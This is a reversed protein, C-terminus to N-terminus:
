ARKGKRYIKYLFAIYAALCVLMISWEWGFALWLNNSSGTYFWNNASRVQEVVMTIANTIVSAIVALFVAWFIRYAWSKTRHWAFVLGVLALVVPYVWSTVQFLWTGFGIFGAQVFSRLISGVQVAYSIVMVGVFAWQWHTTLNLTANKKDATRRAM